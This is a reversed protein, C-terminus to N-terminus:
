TQPNGPPWLRLGARQRELYGPSDVPVITWSEFQGKLTQFVMLVRQDGAPSSYVAIHRRRLVVQGTVTNQEFILWAEQPQEVVDKLVPLWIARRPQVHSGLIEADISVGMGDPTTLTVQDGGIAAKVADIMEAQGSVPPALKPLPKPVLPAADGYDAPTHVRYAGGQLPKWQAQTKAYGDPIERALGVHAQGVNYNFGPDIGRDLALTGGEFPDKRRVLQEPPPAKSPEYGFDTLAAMSLSQVTCRCNWGNPPYHTKWWDDDVQLVTGHWRRHDPRTRDDLVAVYRLWPRTKKVRQIQEWRGAARAMTLNTQYIVKSRWNREGRYAWGHKAVIKDFDKRFAALGTGNDIGKQIADQFDKLLDDKTAGAVVFARAHMGEKIDTWANTPLPWKERFFRSAEEFQVGSGLQVKPAVAV